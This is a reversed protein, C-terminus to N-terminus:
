SAPRRGNEAAAVNRKAGVAVKAPRRTVKYVGKEERVESAMVEWGKCALGIHYPIPKPGSSYATITRRTLHLAEAAGTLSLGHRQMWEKFAGKPMAEGAQELALRYLTIGALEIDGPWALDFGWDGVQVQQFLEADHLPALAAFTAIHEALNVRHSSGDSWTIRVQQKGPAPEVAAIRLKSNM